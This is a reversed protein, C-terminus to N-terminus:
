GPKDSWIVGGGREAQRKPDWISAGPGDLLSRLYRERAQPDEVGRQANGTSTNPGTPAVLFPKAKVLDTLLAAVNTPKGEDDFKIAATDMLKMAAEANVINLRVAEQVVTAELAKARAQSEAREARAQADQAVKQARELESLKADEADKVRQRLETLEKAQAKAEKVEDRLARITRMARDADFQEDSAADTGAPAQVPPSTPQGAPETPAQGVPQEDAM